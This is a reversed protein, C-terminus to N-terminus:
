LKEGTSVNVWDSSVIDYEWENYNSLLKAPIQKIQKQKPLNFGFRDFIRKSNMPMLITNLTIVYIQATQTEKSRKKLDPETFIKSGYKIIEILGTELDKM